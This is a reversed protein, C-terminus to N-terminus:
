GGRPPAVPGRERSRAHHLRSGTGPGALGQAWDLTRAVPWHTVDIINAGAITVALAEQRLRSGRCTKCIQESMFEAIRERMYESNTEIYRRQLITAVIIITALIFAMAAAYGAEARTATGLTKQNKGIGTPLFFILFGM